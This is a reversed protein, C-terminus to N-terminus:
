WESANAPGNKLIMVGAAALEAGAKWRDGPTDSM